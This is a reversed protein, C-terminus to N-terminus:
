FKATANKRKLQLVRADPDVLIREPDFPCEIRIERSEGAGLSITTRSEHYDPSPTGDKAFREGRTAAVAVPMLGTGANEIQVTTKWGQGDTVKTPEHLRYEPLVVEFFWQHTFKDFAAPDAAFPRMAALFDQLVPHDPNGHYAKIFSQIGALSQERGIHNLLMWFVWGGKDYTATTDGPRKGDIKVLPRESDAQRSKGYSAEIRKCFDIRANEGKTQEVLLITSFHATGESLINGGPGKGPVLINGWWQHAAEHATIEFAAHIEPTSRTLFGVGESFTIDTPFGQAYTALSPFESLKLERWPFPYFWESFHRRAADLAELMEDINYPHARDYYVATGEGRKVKWRGAIVNFFNVAHDSEWVVTRRGDKVTDESKAGVSNITFDAPGTVRIRTTFPARTGVFSDTQGKYYDDRYEKSDQRNDDDIGVEDSYGLVPVISSQFSTLVVASPVIFEMSGGGKKSIGAPYTGQHAFGIRVVQDKAWPVPPAFVYLGARNEPSCPKGDMTWSLKEWHPAGSLLIERLPQEGQDILEFTGNVRYRRQEPFLDLQLDVHKIDPTKADRYTALNKRWYDKAKKKAAGGEHGWAVELALWSGLFLPLAGWLALPWSAQLLAIPRLRHVVRTADWERRRFARLTLVSFFVALSVAFLRSLILARRDLELISIDSWHVASWLPWNGVWNIQNTQLRYGTFILVALGLAYTTYRNQTITHVAIVFTTWLLVTPALLLGWVLLFPRIELGVKHQILITIIGAILVASAIALSVALLAISKGILLSETRIPTAHVIAALRTSRERELSEVTYFLLLLCLCTTLAGLTRVAFTGPTALLPTDLFGVEILATGVTQLVLLPIFLYLGPSSRLEALEVRAVRWAGAWLGPRATTMGLSARPAPIVDDASVSDPAQAIAAHRRAQRLSTGRLSAAFHLRCLAAAGLGLAVFVLRSLLFPYDPPITANNYFQVGRDVKLWTENLWRFGAPDLWMLLDNLRPDLWSPSWEWLFFGEVLFLVVPFVFVLLPRRSWEGLLFSVGAMFILTPLCFLLAPRVYNLLHFPGRFDQAESNPLVHYFFAMATLQLAVILACGALVALFKAWTYERPRLSTTHLLEGLRWEQDQIITMGAVVAVFFGNLLTTLVTLQFAVAFESTIYSKTGGVTADGSQIRVGGSSFAWATWIVAFAWVFFLPRRTHYALDGLLVTRFRRLSATIARSM